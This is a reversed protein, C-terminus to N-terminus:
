SSRSSIKAVPMLMSAVYRHVISILISGPPLDWYLRVHINPETEVIKMFTTHITCRRLYGNIFDIPTTKFYGEELDTTIWFEFSLPLLSINKAHFPSVYSNIFYSDSQTVCIGVIKGAIEKGDQNIAVVDDGMNFQKM